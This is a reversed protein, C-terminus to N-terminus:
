QRQLIIDGVCSSAKLIDEVKDGDEINNCIEEANLTVDGPLQVTHSAIMRKLEQKTRALVHRYFLDDNYLLQVDINTDCQLMLNDDAVGFLMLRHSAQHYTFPITVGLISRMNQQEILRCANEIIFLSNNIGRSQQSYQAGTLIELSTALTPVNVQYIERVVNVNGPLYVGFGKYHNPDNNGLLPGQGKIEKTPLYYFVSEQSRYYYRYFLKASQQIIAVILPTPVTYPIQKYMTIRNDISDVFDRDQPTLEISPRPNNITIM